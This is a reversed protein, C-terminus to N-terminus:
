QQTFANPLNLRQNSFNQFYIINEWLSQKSRLYRYILFLWEQDTQILKRHGFSGQIFVIAQFKYSLRSSPTILRELKTITAWSSWLLSYCFTVVSSELALIVLRELVYLRHAFSFESLLLRDIKSVRFFQWIRDILCAYFHDIARGSSM